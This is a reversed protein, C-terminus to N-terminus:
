ASYRAPEPGNAHLQRYEIPTLSTWRRFARTFHAPDSYRLAFAIEIIKVGTDELLRTAAKFRVRDVMEVYSTGLATLRRQLSRVSLGAAMAASAVGTQEAELLAAIVVELSALFDTPPLSVRWPDGGTASSDPVLRRPLPRGLFARPFTVSTVPRGVEVQAEGFIEDTGLGHTGCSQLEVRKPRWERGAVMRVLSIMLAISLLDVQRFATETNRFRRCLRVSAGEDVLWYRAGSNHAPVLDRATQVAAHLTPAGRISTGFRGASELGSRRAVRLGLDAVDQTAAAEETFRLILHLPVLAEPEALARLPLGVGAWLRTTSVGSDTLLEVFSLAGAARILPIAHM